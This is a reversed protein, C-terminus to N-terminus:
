IGTEKRMKKMEKLHEEKSLRTEIHEPLAQALPLELEEGKNIRECLINYNREFVPFAAREASSALFFWDSAKGAHYVAPHSWRQDAKPSPARCAEIYASHVDPLGHENLGSTELFKLIGRITPLFESAKIAKHAAAIISEPTYERLNSFWLKKAYMLKEATPFAKTYQNHYVVEFEAFMQDLSDMVGEIRQNEQKATLQGPAKASAPRSDKEGAEIPTNKSSAEITKKVQQTLTKSDRM